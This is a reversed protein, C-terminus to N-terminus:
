EEEAPADASTEDGASAAVGVPLGNVEVEAEVPILLYKRGDITRTEVLYTYAPDVSITAQETKIEFRKSDILNEPHLAVDGGFQEGCQERFAAAREEPVGCDVLIREVDQSTVTLPEPDKSDRHQDMKDLLQEHVSQLVEM